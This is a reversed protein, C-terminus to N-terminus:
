AESATPGAEGKTAAEAGKLARRESDLIYKLAALSDGARLDGPMCWKALRHWKMLMRHYETVEMGEPDAAFQRFLREKFDEEMQLFSQWSQEEYKSIKQEIDQKM